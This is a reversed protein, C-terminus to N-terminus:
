RISLEALSTLVINGSDEGDPIILLPYDDLPRFATCLRQLETLVDIQVNDEVVVDLDLDSYEDWSGNILSGFLYVAIIREDHEYYDAIAQLLAQHHPTGPHLHAM